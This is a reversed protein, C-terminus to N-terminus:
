KVYKQPGPLSVFPGDLISLAPGIHYNLVARLRKGVLLVLGYNKTPYITSCGWVRSRLGLGKVSQLEYGEASGPDVLQIQLEWIKPEM